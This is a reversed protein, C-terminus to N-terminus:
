PRAKRRLHLELHASDAVYDALTVDKLLDLLAPRIEKLCHHLPCPDDDACHEHWLICEQLKEPGEVAELVDCMSIEEPRRALAYGRGRGRGSILLGHRALKQFIKSLFERPIGHSEAITALPEEVGPPRGALAALGILAYESERTLRM